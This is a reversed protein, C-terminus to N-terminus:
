LPVSHHLQSIMRTYKVYTCIYIYVQETNSSKNHINKERIAAYTPTPCTHIAWEWNVQRSSLAYKWVSSTGDTTQFFPTLQNKKSVKWPSTSNTIVNKQEAIVILFQFHNVQRKQWEPTKLLFKYKLPLPLFNKQQNVHAMKIGTMLFCDPM